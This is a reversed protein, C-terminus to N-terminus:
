TRVHWPEPCVKQPLPEATLPDGAVPGSGSGGAEELQQQRKTDAREDTELIVVDYMKVGPLKTADVQLLFYNALVVTTRGLTCGQDPRVAAVDSYAVAVRQAPRVEVLHGRMYQDAGHSDVRQAQGRGGGGGYGGRGGGGGYGGRGGGRGGGGGFGGMGGGGYGSGGGYGGTGGSGYGSGGGGGGGRDGGYGGAGGYSGGGASTTEKTQVNFRHVPDHVQM